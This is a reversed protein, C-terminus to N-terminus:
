ETSPEPASASLDQLGLAAAFRAVAETDGAPTRGALPGDAAGIRWDPSYQGRVSVFVQGAAALSALFELAPKHCCDLHGPLVLVRVIM